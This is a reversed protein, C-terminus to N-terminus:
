PRGGLRLRLHAAIEVLHQATPAVLYLVLIIGLLSMLGQAVTPLLAPPVRAVAVALLTWIVVSSVFVYLRRWVWRGEALPIGDTM